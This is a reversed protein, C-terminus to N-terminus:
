QRHRLYFGLLQISPQMDHRCEAGVHTGTKSIFRLVKPKSTNILITLFSLLISTLHFCSLYLIFKYLCHMHSMEKVNHCMLIETSKATIDSNPIFFILGMRSQCNVGRALWTRELDFDRSVFVLCSM